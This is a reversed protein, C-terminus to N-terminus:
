FSGGRRREKARLSASTRYTRHLVRVRLHCETEGSAELDRRETWWVDDPTLLAIAFRVRGHEEFKEVITRGRNPQEHLIIPDLELKQLFRAVTEKAENDRGHIIFVKQDEDAEAGAQSSRSSDAEDDEWYENIEEMMSELVSRAKLLGNRYAEQFAHDPTGSIYIPPSYIIRTFDELHRASNGFTKTIAVEVNRKWKTFEPSSRQLRELEAIKGLLKGFRDLAEAKSETAM